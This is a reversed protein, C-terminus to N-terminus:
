FTTEEISPREGAQAQPETEATQNAMPQTTQQPVVQEPVPTILTEQQLAALMWDSAQLDDEAKVCFLTQISNSLKVMGTRGILAGSGSGDHLQRGSHLGHRMRVRRGDDQEGRRGQATGGAGDCTDFHWVPRADPAMWIACPICIETEHKQKM